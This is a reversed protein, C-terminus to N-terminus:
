GPGPWEGDKKGAQAARRRREYRAKADALQTSATVSKYGFFIAAGIFLLGFLPFPGPAGASAAGIMWFLGFGSMVVAMVVGGVANPEHKHGDKGSIMYQQREQEWERDIREVENQRVLEALQEAMVDTKQDLKELLETYASSGTRKVALRSGCHQCTVFNTGPAVELPAGCNNCNVSTIEV